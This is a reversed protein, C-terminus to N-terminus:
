NTEFSNTPFGEGSFATQLLFTPRETLRSFLSQGGLFKLIYSSLTLVNSISTCCGWNTNLQPVKNCTMERKQKGEKGRLDAGFCGDLNFNWTPFGLSVEGVFSKVM